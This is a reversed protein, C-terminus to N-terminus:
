IVRREESLCKVVRSKGNDSRSTVLTDPYAPKSRSDSTILSVERLMAKQLIRWHVKTVHDVGAQERDITFGISLGKADGRIVAESVARGVITDSLEFTADLGEKTETLVLSGDMVSAIRIKPDHDLLGLVPMFRATEFAGPIVKERTRYGHDNEGALSVTSWRNYPVALGGFKRPSLM